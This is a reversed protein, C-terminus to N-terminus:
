IFDVRHYLGEPTDEISIGLSRYVNELINVHDSPIHITNSIYQDRFLDGLLLVNEDLLDIDQLSVAIREKEQEIEPIDSHLYGFLHSISILFSRIIPYAILTFDDFSIHRYKFDHITQRLRHQYQAEQRLNEYYQTMNYVYFQVFSDSTREFFSHILDFSVRDARYEAFYSNIYSTLLNEKTFSTTPSRYIGDSLHALEHFYIYARTYVDLSSSFLEPSIVLTDLTEGYMTKALALERNEQRLSIYDDSEGLERVKSQFDLPFYVNVVKESFTHKSEFLLLVYRFEQEILEKLEESRIDIHLNFPLKVELEKILLVAHAEYNAEQM